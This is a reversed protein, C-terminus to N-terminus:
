PSPAPLPPTTAALLAAALATRVANMTQRRPTKIRLLGYGQSAPADM